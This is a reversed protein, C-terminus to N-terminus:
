RLSQKAIGTQLCKSQGTGHEASLKLSNGLGWYLAQASTHNGSSNEETGTLVEPPHSKDNLDTKYLTETGGSVMM